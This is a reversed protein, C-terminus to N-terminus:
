SRTDPLPSLDLEAKREATPPTPWVYEDLWYKVASASSPIGGRAWIDWVASGDSVWVKGTDPMGIQDTASRWKSTDPTRLQPACAIAEDLERHKREIDYQAERLVHQATELAGWDILGTTVPLDARGKRSRNPHSVM